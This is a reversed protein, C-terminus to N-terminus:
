VGLKEHLWFKVLGSFMGPTRGTNFSSKKDTSHVPMYIEKVKGGAKQIKYLLEVDFAFGRCTFRKDVKDLVDKRVIKLGAQTDSFDLGLLSKSMSNWVRSFLKRSFSGKVSSFDRGLWKSAIVADNGNMLKLLKRVSQSNFAGDADMFGVMESKAAAMGKLVATCKDKERLEMVTVGMSRAIEPTSDTCGNCVVIVRADKIRRLDKITGAISKEENCAPIVMTIM